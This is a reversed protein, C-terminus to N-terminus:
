AASYLVRLRAESRVVSRTATLVETLRPKMEEPVYPLVVEWLKSGRGHRLGYRVGLADLRRALEGPDTVTVWGVREFRPSASPLKWDTSSRVPRNRRGTVPLQPRLARLVQGLRRIAGHPDSFASGFRAPICGFVVGSEGAAGIRVWSARERQLGKRDRGWEGAESRKYFLDGDARLIQMSYHIGARWRLRAVCVHCTWSKCEFRM